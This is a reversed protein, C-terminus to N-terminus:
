WGVSSYFVMLNKKVITTIFIGGNDTEAENKIIVSNKFKYKDKLTNAFVGAVFIKKDKLKNLAKIETEHAIISSSLIIFDSNNIEEDNINRTYHVEHSEKLISSIYMLYMPPMGIM